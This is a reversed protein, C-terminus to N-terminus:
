SYMIKLIVEKHLAKCKRGKKEKSALINFNDVFQETLEDIINLHRYKSLTAKNNESDSAHRNDDSKLPKKM